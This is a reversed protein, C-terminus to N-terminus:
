PPAAGTSERDLSRVGPPTGPGCYRHYAREPEPPIRVRTNSAAHVFNTIFRGLNMPATAARRLDRIAPCELAARAWAVERAFGGGTTPAILPNTSTPFQQATVYTGDRTLLAAVWPAPLPKEHGPLKPLFGRSPREELHSALPEALGYLDLVDLGPGMAYSTIGVGFIAAVPTRVDPALAIDVRQYDNAFGPPSFYYAPGTYWRRNAGGHGWDSHEITVQGPVAPM